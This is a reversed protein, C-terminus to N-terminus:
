SSYVTSVSSLDDEEEEDYFQPNNFYYYPHLQQQQQQQQQQQPQHLAYYHYYYHYFHQLSPRTLTQNRIFQNSKNDFTWCRTCYESEILTRNCTSCKKHCSSCFWDSSLVRDCSGCIVKDMDSSYAAGTTNNSAEMTMMMPSAPPSPFANM